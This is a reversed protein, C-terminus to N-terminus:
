APSRGIATLLADMGKRHLDRVMLPSPTHEDLWDRVAILQKEQPADTLHLRSLLASVTTPQYTDRVASRLNDSFKSSM